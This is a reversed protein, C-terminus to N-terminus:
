RDGGPDLPKRFCRIVAVEDFGLSRHARASVTNDALADSAFERCGLARAWAEAASVLARGIGQRRREAVVFWGELFGVPSTECGEAYARRSLEAFGLLMARADSEVAVLVAEPLGADDPSTRALFRTVESALVARDADPWLEARLTAWAAAEARQVHRIHFSGPARAAGAGATQHSSIPMM